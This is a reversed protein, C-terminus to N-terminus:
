NGLPYDRLTKKTMSVARSIRILPILDIIFFIPGLCLSGIAMIGITAAPKHQDKTLFITMGFAFGGFFGYIGLGTAVAAGQQALLAGLVAAFIAGFLFGFVLCNTLVKKSHRYHDNICDPCLHEKTYGFCEACLPQGCEACHGVAPRNNHVSCNM